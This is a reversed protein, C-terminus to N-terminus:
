FMFRTSELNSMTIKRKSYHVLFDAYLVVEEFLLINSKLMSTTQM